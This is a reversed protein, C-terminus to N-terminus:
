FMQISDSFIDQWERKKIVKIVPRFDLHHRLIVLTFNRWHFILFRMHFYVFCLFKPFDTIYCLQIGTVQINVFVPFYQATKHQKAM